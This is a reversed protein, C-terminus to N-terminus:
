APVPGEDPTDAVPIMRGKRVAYEVGRWTIRHRWQGVFWLAIFVFDMPVAMWAHRGIHPDDILPRNLILPTLTRSVAAGLFVAIHFPSAPALLWFLAGLFATNAFPIFHYGIPSSAKIAVMWRITQGAHFRFPEDDEDMAILLPVLKIGYGHRAVLKGLEQDTTLRDAIPRLGGIKELVQRPIAMTAGVAVPWFRCWLANYLPVSTNYTVSKALSWFGRAGRYVALGSTLGVSEDELPGILRRIYDPTARTDSDTFIVIEGGAARYGNNLNNIQPNLGIETPDVVLKVKKPGPRDLYQRVLPLVPDQPDAVALILEYDPYDIACFSELNEALRADTGKLAKIISVSPYRHLSPAPRGKRLYIRLNVTQIVTLVFSLIVLALLAANIVSM